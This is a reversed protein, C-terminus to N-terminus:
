FPIQDDTILSGHGRQQPFDTAPAVPKKFFDSLLKPAAPKGMGGVGNLWKVKVYGKADTETTFRVDRGVIYESLKKTVFEENRLQEATVGLAERFTKEANDMTSPTLWIVHKIRGDECELPVEFGLTGKASSTIIQAGALVKGDYDTDGQVPMFGGRRIPPYPDRICSLAMKRFRMWRDTCKGTVSRRHYRPRRTEVPHYTGVPLPPNDTGGYGYRM